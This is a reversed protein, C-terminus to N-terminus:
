LEDKNVTEGEVDGNVGSETATEGETAEAGETADGEEAAVTETEEEEEEPEEEAQADADLNLGLNIIKTIRSAFKAPDDVQFGSTLLASEYMLQALDKTEEGVSGDEVRAKLEKIIPHRPNIELTKKGMLYAQDNPDGGMAQAKVIREMNASYGWTSTVIVSPSTALRNSVKVGELKAELNDKLWDTLPKFEEETEKESEKAKEDDEGPLKLGEKTANMLKHGQFETLHQVTYEDIADVFYLVEYGKRILREVFPSSELDRLNEGAVYYIHEQKEKMREVYSELSILEGDSKSSYYRVLKAIRSRNAGDEIIGFKLNNGFQKLFKLYSEEDNKALKKLMELAKRVIKKKIVKLVKSQQLMERSVNLSLTDSDVVGRVFAMYKPLFDDLDDTIFVRKVYLKIQKVKDASYRNRQNEPAIFLLSKFEIEGEAKFHIRAAPDNSDKTLAKYFANYEEDTIDKPERTWLPKSTNLLEWDWVEKDVTKTKPIDEDDDADDVKMESDDEGEKKEEEDKAGEEEKKEAKRKKREEELEEETLDVEEQVTKKAWLYIPFNIFESYRKVLGRLETEDLYDLADEKMHLIIETGRGLTNGEPDKIVSYSSDGSSRNASWIHQDDDNNKSVVVVRDAALFASYFGVGFQGILDSTNGGKTTAELFEKTGSKAIRGLNNVMDERTMGVGKDRISLTKKNKDFKLRIDLDAQDGEGLVSADTLSM